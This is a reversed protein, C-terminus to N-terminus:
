KPHVKVSKQFLWPENMVLHMALSVGATWVFFQMVEGIQFAVKLQHWAALGFSQDLQRM